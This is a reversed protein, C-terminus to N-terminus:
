NVERTLPEDTDRIDTVSIITSGYSEILSIIEWMEDSSHGLDSLAYVIINKFENREATKILRNLAPLEYETDIFKHSESIQLGREVILDEIATQKKKQQSSNLIGSNAIYYAAEKKLM